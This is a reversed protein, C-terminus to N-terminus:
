VSTNFFINRFQNFLIYTIKFIFEKRISLIYFLLGCGSDFKQKSSFLPTGDLIDVYLGDREEEYYENKFPPETHAEQTVKRQLETLKSLDIQKKM